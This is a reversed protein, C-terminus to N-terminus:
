TGSSDRVELGDAMVVVYEDGFEEQVGTLIHTLNASYDTINMFLQGHRTFILKYNKMRELRVQVIKVPFRHGSPTRRM